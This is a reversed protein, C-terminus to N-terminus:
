RAQSRIVATMTHAKGPDLKVAVDGVNATEICMMNPWEDDGFDPMSKAKAIWPNWVVTADSGSKAVSINRAGATDHAVCTAKTNLYVRDTEATFTIPQAGQKRRTVAGGSAKDLYETGELGEVQAQRVDVVSLYSHLAEEFTFSQSGSNQVELMMRLEPGIVVTFRCRFDFPWAKRTADDSALSLVLQASGDDAKASSEVSWEKLRAFGHAPASADDKKPGFWPFCIPVGGRIPKGAAFQSKHSMFLLPAQAHPHYHTVHAGHLYVHADAHPTTIACRTLGGEGAEFRLVGPISFRSLDDTPM